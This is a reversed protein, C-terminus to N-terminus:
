ESYGVGMCYRPKNKPLLDTCQSVIKWFVDKSEGGSLGGIAYGNAHRKLMEHACISRLEPDLGGQLIPFLNQSAQNKNSVICRDLWRISRWM